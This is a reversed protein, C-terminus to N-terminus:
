AALSYPRCELWSLGHRDLISLLLTDLHDLATLKGRVSAPKGSSSCSTAGGGHATGGGATRYRRTRLEEGTRAHVDAPITGWLSQVALM